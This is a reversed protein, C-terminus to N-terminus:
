ADWVDQAIAGLLTDIDVGTTLADRERLFPFTAEDSSNFAAFDDDEVVEVAVKDEEVKEVEEEEVVVGVATISM